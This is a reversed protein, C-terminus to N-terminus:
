LQKYMYTTPDYQNEDRVDRCFGPIVGATEFGLLSYLPEANDGTRTDLTILTRSRERAQQELEAMLSKAIGRRQFAPSVLLKSVEARHAQNPMTDCCLQVTGAVSDGVKAVMLVSEGVVVSPRVKNIWFARSDEMTFPLVFGVSAGDCVCAHLVESLGKLHTDFSKADLCLISPHKM